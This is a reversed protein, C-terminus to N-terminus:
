RTDASSMSLTQWFFLVASYFFKLGCLHSCILNQFDKTLCCHKSVTSQATGSQRGYSGASDNTVTLQNDHKLKQHHLNFQHLPEPTFYILYFSGLAALEQSKMWFYVQQMKRNTGSSNHICYFDLWYCRAKNRRNLMHKRSLLRHVGAAQPTRGQVLQVVHHLAAQKRLETNSVPKQEWVHSSTAQLIEIGELQGDIVGDGGRVPLDPGLRCAVSQWCHLHMFFNFLQSLFWEQGQHKGCTQSAPPQLQVPYHWSSNRWPETYHM